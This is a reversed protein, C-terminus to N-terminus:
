CKRPRNAPSIANPMSCVMPLATSICSTNQRPRKPQAAAVAASLPLLFLLPLFSWLCGGYMSVGESKYLAMVEQQYKQKDDGCALELQKLQPQLRSMKMMSKKSKASFPLLILKVVFSFLILALGYNNLFGYFFELVYGFPVRIFDM